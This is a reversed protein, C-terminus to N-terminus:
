RPAQATAGCSRGSDPWSRSVAYIGALTVFLTVFGVLFINRASWRIIAAIM